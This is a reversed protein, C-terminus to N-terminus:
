SPRSGTTPTPATPTRSGSGTRPGSRSRSRRAAKGAAEAGEPTETPTAWLATAIADARARGRAWFLTAYYAVRDITVQSHGDTVLQEHVDRGLALDALPTADLGALLEDLEPPVPGPALGLRIEIRAACAMLQRGIAVSPPRVTYDRGGLPIVLDPQVWDTFDVTPM